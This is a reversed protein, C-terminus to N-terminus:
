GGVLKIIGEEDLEILYDLVDAEVQSRTGHYRELMVDCLDSVRRPSDLMLWITRGVKDLGYFAEAETNMMVFDDELDATILGETRVVKADLGITSQTM